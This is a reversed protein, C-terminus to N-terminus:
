IVRKKIKKEAVLIHLYLFFLVINEKQSKLSYPEILRDHMEQYLESPLTKKILTLLSKKM